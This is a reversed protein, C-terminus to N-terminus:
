GRKERLAFYIRVLKPKNMQEWKSKHSTPYQALFYNIYEEKRHPVYFDVFPCYRKVGNITHM